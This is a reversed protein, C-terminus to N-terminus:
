GPMRYRRIVFYVAAAAVVCLASAYLSGYEAESFPLNKTNMGFYGTVFAPPLLLTTVVTLAFLNRNTATALQAAAEEQLLRARDGQLNLDARFSAVRQHVRHGLDRYVELAPRSRHHELQGLLSMTAQVLRDQKSIARRLKLLKGSEDSVSDSLVRDEVGDIERAIRDAAAGVSDATEVLMREFLEASSDFTAGAAIRDRLATATKVPHHRATVLFQPRVAFRLDGSEETVSVLDRQADLLVGWLADGDWDLRPHMEVSLLVDKADEPLGDQAKIWDRTRANSLMLHVWVFRRGRMLDVPRDVDLSRGVGDDDFEFAWVVGPAVSALDVRSQRSM